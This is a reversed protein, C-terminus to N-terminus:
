GILFIHGRFNAQEWDSYSLRKFTKTRKHFDYVSAHVRVIGAITSILHRETQSSPKILAHGTPVHFNHMTYPLLTMWYYTIPGVKHSFLDTLRGVYPLPTMDNRLMVFENL